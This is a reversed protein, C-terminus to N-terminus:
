DGSSMYLVWESIAELWENATDGDSAQLRYDRKGIRISLENAGTLTVGRDDPM